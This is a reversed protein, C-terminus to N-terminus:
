ARVVTESLTEIDGVSSLNPILLFYAAFLAMYLIILAVTSFLAKKKLFSAVWMAPLSLLTAIALPLIPAVAAIFPVLAFFAASFSLVTVLILIKIRKNM